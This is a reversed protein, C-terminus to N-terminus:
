KSSMYKEYATRIESVTDVDRLQSIHAFYKEVAEEGSTNFLRYLKLVKLHLLRDKYQQGGEERMKKYYQQMREKHYQKTYSIPINDDTQM